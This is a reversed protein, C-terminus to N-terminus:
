TQVITGQVLVRHSTLGSFDDNLVIELRENNDGDLLVPPGFKDFSWRASLYNAGSGFDIYALDHCYAAWDANTKITGGATLDAMTGSDNEIRFVIGNTITINNGYRGADLGGTDAISVIIRHVLVKSGAAPQYEFTNPTVSYDGIMQSTSGNSFFESVVADPGRMPMGKITRYPYTLPM